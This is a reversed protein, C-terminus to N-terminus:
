LYRMTQGITPFQAWFITFCMAGVALGIIAFVKNGKKKLLALGSFTIGAAAFAFELFMFIVYAVGAGHSSGFAAIFSGVLMMLAAALSFIFGLLAFIGGSSKPQQPYPYGPYQQYQQQQQQPAQQPQGNYNQM